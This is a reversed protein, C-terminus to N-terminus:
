RLVSGMYLQFGNGIIPLHETPLCEGILASLIDGCGKAGGFLMFQVPSRIYLKAALVHGDKDVDLSLNRFEYPYLEKITKESGAPLWQGIISDAYQHIAYKNVRVYREVQERHKRILDHKNADPPIFYNLQKESRFPHNTFSINYSVTEEYSNKTIEAVVMLSDGKYAVYCTDNLSLWLLSDKQSTDCQNYELVVTARTFSPLLLLIACVMFMRKRCTLRIKKYEKNM